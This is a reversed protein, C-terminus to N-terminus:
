GVAKGCRGCRLGNDITQLAVIVSMGCQLCTMVGSEQCLRLGAVSDFDIYAKPTMVPKFLRHDLDIYYATGDLQVIPLVQPKPAPRRAPFDTEKGSM